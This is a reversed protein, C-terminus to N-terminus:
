VTFPSHGFPGTHLRRQSQRAERSRQARCSKWREYMGAVAGVGALGISVGICIDRVSFGGVVAGGSLNVNTTICKKIVEGNCETYTYYGDRTDNNSRSVANVERNNVQDIDNRPRNAVQTDDDEDIVIVDGPSESTTTTTTPKSTVFKKKESEDYRFCSLNM